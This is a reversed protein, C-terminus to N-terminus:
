QLTFVAWLRPYSTNCKDMLLVVWLTDFDRVEVNYKLDGSLIFILLFPMVDSTIYIFVNSVKM